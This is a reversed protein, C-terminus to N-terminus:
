YKVIINSLLARLLYRKRVIWYREIYMFFRQLSYFVARTPKEFYKLSAKGNWELYKGKVAKSQVTNLPGILEQEVTGHRWPKNSPKVRFCSTDSVVSLMTARSHRSNRWVSRVDRHRYESNRSVTIANNWACGIAHSGGAHAKVRYAANAFM